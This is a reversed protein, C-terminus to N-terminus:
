LSISSSSTVASNKKRTTHESICSSVLEMSQFLGDLEFQVVWGEIDQHGFSLWVFENEKEQDRMIGIPFMVYDIKPSDTWKGQYMSENVIPYRSITHVNFPPRPCFTIAGMFYTRLDTPLQFKSVTHFFALYVGRILIAPTGGRIPLGYDASWISSLPPTHPHHYLMRSSVDSSTNSFYSLGNTGHKNNGVKVVSRLQARRTIPDHAVYEVIHLPEISQIFLLRENFEFPIWNKQTIKSDKTELLITDNFELKGTLRNKKGVIFCQKPPQFLSEKSTYAIVLSGDRMTLLRPDERMQNFKFVKIPIPTSVALGAHSFTSDISSLDHTLWSVTINSDYLNPRWIILTRNEWREIAPNLRNSYHFSKKWFIPTAIALIKQILVRMKEDPSSNRRKLLPVSNIFHYKELLKDSISLIKSKNSVLEAVSEINLIKRAEKSNHLLLVYNGNDTKAVSYQKQFSECSAIFLFFGIMMYIMMEHAINHM